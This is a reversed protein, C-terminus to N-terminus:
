VQDQGDLRGARSFAPLQSYQEVGDVCEADYCLGGSRLFVHLRQGAESGDSDPFEGVVVEVDVEASVLQQVIRCWREGCQRSLGRAVDASTWVGSSSLDYECVYSALRMAASLTLEDLQEGLTTSELWVLRLVYGADQLQAVADMEDLVGESVYPEACLAWAREPYEALTTLDPLLDGAAGCAFMVTQLDSFKPMGIVEPTPGSSEPKTDTPPLCVGLESLTQETIYTETEIWVGATGATVKANDTVYVSDSDFLQQAADIVSANFSSGVVAYTEAARKRLWEPTWGAALLEALEEHNLEIRCGCNM